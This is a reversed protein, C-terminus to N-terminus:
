IATLVTRLKKIALGAYFRTEFDEDDLVKELYPISEPTGYEMLIMVAKLRVRQHADNLSQHVYELTGSPNVKNLAGLATSRTWWSEDELGMVLVDLAKESGTKGLATYVASRSVPLTDQTLCAMLPDISEHSGIEGLAWAAENRVRGVSAKLTRVLPGIAPGSKIKGLELAAFERNVEWEHNLLGILPGAAAEGMSGLGDFYKYVDRRVKTRDIKALLSDITERPTEATVLRGASSSGGSFDVWFLSLGMLIGTYLLIIWAVERRKEPRPKGTIWRQPVKLFRILWKPLPFLFPTNDRYKEYETGHSNKMRIEELMCIGIIIMTM